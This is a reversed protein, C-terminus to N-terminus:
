RGSPTLDHAPDPPSLAGGSSAEALEGGAPSVVALGGAGVRGRLIAVAREAVALDGPHHVGCAVMSPLAAATGFRGLGALVGRRVAPDRSTLGRLLTPEAGPEDLHALVLLARRVLEQDLAALRGGPPALRDVLGVVERWQGTLREVHTVTLAQPVLELDDWTHGVGEELAARDRLSHLDTLAVSRVPLPLSREALLAVLTPPHPTLRGAMRRVEPDDDGLHDAALARDAAFAEGALKRRVAGPEADRFALALRGGETLAELAELAEALAVVFAVCGRLEQPSEVRARVRIEGDEIRLLDAADPLGRLTDRVTRPFWALVAPTGPVESRREPGSGRLDLRAGVPVPAVRFALGGVGPSAGVAKRGFHGTARREEPIWRLGSDRFLAEADRLEAGRDPRQLAVVARLSEALEPRAGELAEVVPRSLLRAPLLGLLARAAREPLRRLLEAGAAAGEADPLARILAAADPVGDADGALREVVEAVWPGPPVGSLRARAIPRAPGVVSLLRAALDGAPVEARLRSFSRDRVPTPVLPDTALVLLADADGRHEAAVLRVLPDRDAAAPAALAGPAVALLRLRVGPDSETRFRDGLDAPETLSAALARLGAAVAGPDGGPALRGGFRGDRLRLGLGCAAAVAARVPATAVRLWVEADGELAVAADFGADGTVTTRAARPHAPGAALGPPFGDVAVEAGRRGWWRRALWASSAGLSTAALVAWVLDM